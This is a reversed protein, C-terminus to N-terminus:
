QTLMSCAPAAGGQGMLFGRGATPWVRRRKPPGSPLLGACCLFFLVRVCSRACMRPLCFIPRRVQVPPASGNVGIHAFQVCACLRLVSVFSQLFLGAFVCCFYAIIKFFFGELNARMTRIARNGPQESCGTARNSTQGTSHGTRELPWPVTGFLFRHTRDTGLCSNMFIPFLGSSQM